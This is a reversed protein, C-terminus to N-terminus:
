VIIIITYIINHFYLTNKSTSKKSSSKSVADLVKDKLDQNPTLYYSDIIDQNWDILYQPSGEQKLAADGAATHCEKERPNKSLFFWPRLDYM